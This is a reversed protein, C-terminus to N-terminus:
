YNIYLWRAVDEVDSDNFQITYFYTGVPLLGDGALPGKNPIGAFEQYNQARTEYIVTGYRNFVKLEFNTFQEINPIVFTDNITDGNPSFGEPLIVECTEVEVDFTSVNFCGTNADTLRAYITSGDNIDDTDSLSGSGAEADTLSLHYTVSYSAPSLGNLIANDQASLVFATRLDLPANDCETLDSATGINPLDLVVLDFTGTAYCDQDQANSVRVYITEPNSVNDYSQPTTIANTNADADAQTNFYSVVYDAPDQSGLIGAEQSTLDFNEIGDASLDDCAELDNVSNFASTNYTVDLTETNFCGSTNDTIRVFVTENTTVNYATSNLIPNSDADADAQSNYFTVDYLTADLGNLVDTNRVTLDVTAAGSSQCVIIDNPTTSTIEPAVDICITETYTCGFDDTFDISYCNQGAVSPTVTIDNGTQATIDANTQWETLVESPEYSGAAPIIAPNFNIGWEFIYGNDISLNDVIDLCWLGNLPTGIFNSFPDEPSYSGAPMPTGFAVPGTSQDLTQTAAETFTYVFGVGPTTTGDDLANGLFRGGGSNPYTLFKVQSGNPATLTIDLDGMYSHEIDIFVNVLDSASAFTSGAPFGTVDICTQYAVGSGDPLFTQGTIPPAVDAFFQTTSVNGTITTSEGFCLSTDAAVVGSFDPTTSVIVTADITQRDRCGLQDFAVYDIEYIGPSNYVESASQGSVVTGDALRFEYTAGTSDQSFQTTGTFSVTDGQCVRIIGDGDPAPTTTVTNSISQCNTVCQITGEWGPATNSSDSIFRFTLCGSPNTAPPSAIVTGPSNTGLFVGIIPSTATDGDYIILLDGSALDFSNFSVQIADLPFPSCITTVFSEGNSYNGTLDGSDTFSGSCSTYNADNMIFTNQASVGVSIFLFALFTLINLKM